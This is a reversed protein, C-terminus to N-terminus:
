RNHARWRVRGIAQPLACAREPQPRRYLIRAPYLYKGDEDICGVLAATPNAKGSDFGGFYKWHPSPKFASTGPDIIIKHAYTNLIEAFLREVGGASFAIEQERQWSGESTYKRRERAKWEPKAREPDASYHVSLVCFGNPTRKEILEAAKEETQSQFLVEVGPHIMCDHTFFAVFLRSLMLDRSKACFLIPERLLAEIIPQFYPKHPFPRYPSPVGDERWHPDRSETHHQLWHLLDRVKHGVNGCLDSCSVSPQHHKEERGPKAELEQLKRKIYAQSAM